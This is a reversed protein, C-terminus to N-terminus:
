CLCSDTLLTKGRSREKVDNRLRPAKSGCLTVNFIPSLTTGLFVSHDSEPDNPSIGDVLIGTLFGRSPREM